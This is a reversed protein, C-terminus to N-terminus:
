LGSVVVLDNDDLFNLATKLEELTLKKDDLLIQQYDQPEADNILEKLRKAELYIGKKLFHSYLSQALGFLALEIQITENAFRNQHLGQDKGQDKSSSQGSNQGSNQMTEQSIGSRYDKLPSKRRMCIGSIGPLGDALVLRNDEYVLNLTLDDLPHGQLFVAEIHKELYKPALSFDQTIVQYPTKGAIIKVKVGKQFLLPIRWDTTELALKM